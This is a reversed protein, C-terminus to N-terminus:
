WKIFRSLVYVLVAIGLSGAGALAFKGVPTSSIESITEPIVEVFQKVCVLSLSVVLGVAVIAGAVMLATVGIGATQLEPEDPVKSKILVRFKIRRNEPLSNSIIEWDDRKGLSWEILAIHVSPIWLTGVTKFELEILDGPKLPKNKDIEVWTKM